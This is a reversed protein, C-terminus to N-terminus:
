PRSRVDHHISQGPRGGPAIHGDRQRPLASLDRAGFEGTYCCSDYARYHALVYGALNTADADRLAPYRTCFHGSGNPDVMGYLEAGDVTQVM